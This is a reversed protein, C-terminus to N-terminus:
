DMWAIFRGKKETISVNKLEGKSNYAKMNEIRVSPTYFFEQLLLTLGALSPSSCIKKM